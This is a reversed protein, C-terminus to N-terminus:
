ELKFDLILMDSTIKKGVFASTIDCAQGRFRHHLLVRGDADDVSLQWIGDEGDWQPPLRIRNGRSGMELYRKKVHAQPPKAPARCLLFCRVLGWPTRHVPPSHTHRLHTPAVLTAVVYACWAGFAFSRGHMNRDHWNRCYREAKQAYAVDNLSCVTRLPRPPRMGLNPPERRHGLGRRNSPPPRSDSSIGLAGINRNCCLVVCHTQVCYSLM